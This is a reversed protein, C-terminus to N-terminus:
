AAAAKDAIITCSPHHKLFSAPCESHVPGSSVQHLIHRKSKGSVLLLIRKAGLIQRMGATMAQLPVRDRGGWYVSNSELSEETLTVIRTNADDGVPPENFALHGNPGLGLIALDFGGDAAVNEDYNKCTEGANATDCNLRVIHELPISLPSVFMRDMWGWLTRPDEARLGLYEDLQYVKLQSPDFHGEAKLKALEAYAGVPTNGTAVVISANPKSAVTLSIQRAAEKSLGDYDETVITDM